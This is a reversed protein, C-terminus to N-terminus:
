LKAMYVHCVVNQNTDICGSKLANNLPSTASGSVSLQPVIVGTNTSNAKPFVRTVNLTLNVTAMNGTLSSNTGAIAFYAYTSGTISIFLVLILTITLQLKTLKKETKNLM